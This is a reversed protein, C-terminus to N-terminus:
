LRSKQSNIPFIVTFIYTGVPHTAMWSLNKVDTGILTTVPKGGISFAIMYYPPTGQTNLSGYSRIIIPVPRCPPLQTYFAQPLPSCITVIFTLLPHFSTVVDFGFSWQWFLSDQALCPAICSALYVSLLYLSLLISFNRWATQSHVLQISALM